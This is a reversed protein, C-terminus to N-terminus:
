GLFFWTDAACYLRQLPGWGTAQPGSPEDWIKGQYSQMYPLQLFTAAHGLSTEVRQGEGKRSTALGTSGRAATASPASRYTSLTQSTRESRSMASVWANRWAWACTKYFRM